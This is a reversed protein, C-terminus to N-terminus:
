RLKKPINPQYGIWFCASAATAVAFLSLAAFLVKLLNKKM